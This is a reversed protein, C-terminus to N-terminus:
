FAMSIISELSLVATIVQHLTSSPPITDLIKRLVSFILPVIVKILSTPARGNAQNPTSAHTHPSSHSIIDKIHQKEWFSPKQSNGLTDSSTSAATPDDEATKGSSSLPPFAEDTLPPAATSTINPRQIHKENVQKNTQRKAYVAGRAERLTTNNEHQYRMIETERQKVPCETANSTHNGRCNVCSPTAECAGEHSQGCQYCIQFEAACAVAIHGFKHCKYCQLPRARYPIVTTRVLGVKVHQPAMKGAFAVRVVPSAKGLRKVETVGISSQLQAKVDQETYDPDIDRLVGFCNSRERPIFARVPVDCLKTIKLLEAKYLPRKVDVAVINRAANVRVVSVMGPAVNNLFDTLKLKSLSGVKDNATPIFLVTYGVQLNTENTPPSAPSQSTKRRKKGHVLEYQADDSLMDDDDRLSVITSSSSSHSDNISDTPPLDGIPGTAQDEDEEMHLQNPPTLPETTM